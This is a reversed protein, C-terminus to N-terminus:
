KDWKGDQLRLEYLEKGYRTFSYVVQLKSLQQIEELREPSFSLCIIKQWNRFTTYYYGRWSDVGASNYRHNKSLPGCFEKHPGLRIILKCNSPDKGAHGYDCVVLKPFLHWPYFNKRGGLYLITIGKQDVTYRRGDIINAFAFVCFVGIGFVLVISPLFLDGTEPYDAYWDIAVGGFLFLFAVAAFWIFVRSGRLSKTNLCYQPPSNNEM